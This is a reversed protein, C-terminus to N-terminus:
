CSGFICEGDCCTMGPYSGCPTGNPKGVCGGAQLVVHAGAGGRGFAAVFLGANSRLVPRKTYPVYDKDIAAPTM